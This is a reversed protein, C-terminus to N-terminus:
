TLGAVNRVSSPVDTLVLSLSKSLFSLFPEARHVGAETTRVSLCGGLVLLALISLFFGLLIIYLWEQWHQFFGFCATQRNVKKEVTEKVCKRTSQQTSCVDWTKTITQGHVHKSRGRGRKRKDEYLVM